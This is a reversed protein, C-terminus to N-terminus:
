QGRGGGRGAEGGRGGGGRGAGFPPYTRPNIVHRELFFDNLRATSDAFEAIGVFEHPVGAFEHLECPINAGRLLRLFDESSEPRVTTDALGHYLVTPPFGKIHTGPEAQKWAEESSGEPMPFGKRFGEWAPGTVAYYAMCVAVQTGVGPNGGGGEYQSQNQTGAAFLALHGGASYGAVGIRVPDIGLRSANARTWRIAAKVDEIQAPWRAVGSLRYQVALNVYGLASLSQLRAALNNKNGGAFGGGHCHLIAMRKSAAGSPKYIDCHLDVDGGKGFVVDKEVNAADRAPNPAPAQGQARATLAAWESAAVSAGLTGLFLRRTWTM